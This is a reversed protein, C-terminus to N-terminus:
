FVHMNHVKGFIWGGKVIANPVPYFVTGHMLVSSLQFDQNRGGETSIVLGTAENHAGCGFILLANTCLREGECLDESNGEQLISPMVQAGSDGM